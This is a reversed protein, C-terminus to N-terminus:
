KFGDEFPTEGLVWDEALVKGIVFQKPSAGEMHHIELTARSAKMGKSFIWKMAAAQPSGVKCYGELIEESDPSSMGYCCWQKDDQFPGNFYSDEAIFVRVLASDGGKELLDNWPPNVKRAFSDFDVKWVGGADPTLFVLRQRLKGGQKFFAIVGDITLDTADLSSLWVLHDLTGDSSPLGGLFGVIEEPNATGLRFHEAVQAPDRIALARKVLNLAETESPSSFKSISSVVSEHETESKIGHARGARIQPLLWFFLAGMLSVAALVGLLLSWNFILKSDGQRARESRKRRRRVGKPMGTGPMRAIRGLSPADGASREHRNARVARQIGDSKM